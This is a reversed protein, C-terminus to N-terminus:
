PAKRRRPEHLRSSGDGLGEHASCGRSPSASSSGQVADPSGAGADQAGTSSCTSTRTFGTPAAPALRAGEGAGDVRKRVTGTGSDGAKARREAGVSWHSGRAGDGPEVHLRPDGSAAFAVSDTLGASPQMTGGPEGAQRQRQRSGPSVLSSSASSCRAPMSPLFSGRAMVSMPSHEFTSTGPGQVLSVLLWDPQGWIWGAETESNILIL